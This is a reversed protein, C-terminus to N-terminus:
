GASMRGLDFLDPQAEEFRHELASFGHQRLYNMEELTVPAGLLWAVTKGSLPRSHLQGDEWLFPNLLLLRPVTGGSLHEGVM